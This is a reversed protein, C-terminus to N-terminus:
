NLKKKRWSKYLTKVQYPPYYQIRLRLRFAYKSQRDDEEGSATEGRVVMRARGGRRCGVGALAMDPPPHLTRAIQIRVGCSATAKELHLKSDERSL